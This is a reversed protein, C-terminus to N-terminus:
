ERCSPQRGTHNMVARQACSHTHRRRCPEMSIGHYQELLRSLDLEFANAGTLKFLPQLEVDSLEDALASCTKLIKPQAMATKHGQHCQVHAAPVIQLWSTHVPKHRLMVTGSCSESCLDAEISFFVVVLGDKNSFFWAPKPQFRAIAYVSIRIMVVNIM